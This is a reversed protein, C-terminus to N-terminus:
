RVAQAARSSHEARRAAVPGGLREVLDHTVKPRARDVAGPHDDYALTTVAYGLTTFAREISRWYGHFVPSLVLLRPGSM